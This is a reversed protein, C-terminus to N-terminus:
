RGSIHIVGIGVFDVKGSLLVNRHDAHHMMERHMRFLTDGCGVVDAGLTEYGSYPSLIGALNAVDFLRGERIMSRTHATATDSLKANLKLPRLDHHVRANNIIDLYRSRLTAQAAPALFGVMLTVLVPLVLTARRARRHDTTKRFRM